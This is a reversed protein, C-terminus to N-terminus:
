PSITLLLARMRLLLKQSPPDVYWLHLGGPEGPNGVEQLWNVMLTITSNLSLGIWLTKAGTRCKAARPGLCVLKIAFTIGTKNAMGGQVFRARILTAQCGFVV